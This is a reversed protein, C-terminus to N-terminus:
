KMFHEKLEDISRSSSSRSDSKPKKSIDVVPPKEEKSVKIVPELKYIKNTKPAPLVTQQDVVTHPVFTEGRVFTKSGASDDASFYALVDELVAAAEAEQQQVSILNFKRKPSMFCSLWLIPSIRVIQGSSYSITIIQPRPFYSIVKKKAEIEELARKYPTKKQGSVLTKLKSENIEKKDLSSSSASAPPHRNFDM